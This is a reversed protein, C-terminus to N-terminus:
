RQNFIKIKDLLLRCVLELVTEHARLHTYSVPKGALGTPWGSIQASPFLQSGFDIFSWTCIGICLSYVLPPEFPHDPRFAYQISAIALCFAITQLGRRLKDIWDIKM